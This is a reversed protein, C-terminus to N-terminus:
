PLTEIATKLERLHKAADALSNCTSNTKSVDSELRELYSNTSKRQYNSFSRSMGGKYEGHWFLFRSLELLKTLSKDRVVKCQEKVTKCQEELRQIIEEAIQLYNDPEIQDRMCHQKLEKLTLRRAEYICTSILTKIQYKQGYILMALVDGAERNKVMTVMLAECKQAITDIQYEHALEFLFYCNRKTVCKEELSPYMMQLMEKIENAKKGPLPIEGNDKEKFDTIFMKEFVPSWFALTSRHVHFREDEVVLVVDSFKWPESFEPPQGSAASTAPKAAM